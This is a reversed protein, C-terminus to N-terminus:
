IDNLGLHSGEGQRIEFRTVEYADLASRLEEGIEVRVAHPTLNAVLLVIRQDQEIAIAAVRGPDDVECTVVPKQAIACLDRVIDGIPYRQKTAPDILGRPGAFAAPVWRGISATSIRMGYGVTWAAGFQGRHRPDDNTMCIRQAHPNEFTRSGYPNQRMAITSPGLRYDKGEGIIARASRLIHPLTELTEMVSEDDAAHVIPATSHTVFDLLDVPPRKRNLETFYSFMGGGLVLCPFARRAARYIEALPPCEPWDSGPPTSQRDVSPCVLLTDPSFGADRLNNGLAGFEDDLDGSGDVVYELEYDAGFARQLKAFAALDRSSHGATPDFHCLLAQPGIETLQGIQPLTMPVDEPSIVLGVKPFLCGARGGIEIAVPSNEESGAAQRLQAAIGDSRESVSLDVSQRNTEGAPMLYPWPLELPRVYTKFSADSWNRQDEMEFVDGVMRCTALLHPAAHHTLSRISKFPQWPDILEPFVTDEVSGDCHEVRVPCGAVGDIPHLVTFGCRNTEFDHGPTADVGFHLTGNQKGVIEASLSLHAGDLVCTARYSVCFRDPHEEIKMDAIELDLTGWDRDRIVYSVARLVEYGQYRIYRLNGKELRAELPGARLIRRPPQPEITGFLREADRRSKTM